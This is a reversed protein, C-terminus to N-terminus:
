TPACIERLDSWQHIGTRAQGDGRVTSAAPRRSETSRRPQSQDQCADEAPDDEATMRTCVAHAGLLDNQGLRLDFADVLTEAHTGADILRALTDPRLFPSPSPGEATLTCGPSSCFTTRCHKSRDSSSM